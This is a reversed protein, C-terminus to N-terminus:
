PHQLAKQSENQNKIWLVEKKKEKPKDTNTSGTAMTHERMAVRSEFFDKILMM